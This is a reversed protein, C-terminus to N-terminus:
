LRQRDDPAPPRKSETVYRQALTAGTNAILRDAVRLRRSLEKAINTLLVAYQRMDRGALLRHVDADTMRLLRTPSLARASASRPQTELIAMEGFWDGPGLLAVCVKGHRGQALVEVEGHVIVFMDNAMDGEKVLQQGPASTDCELEASLVQLTAEDLGRFLAHERLMDVHVHPAGAESLYM